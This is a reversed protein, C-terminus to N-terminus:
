HAAPRKAWASIAHGAEPFTLAFIFFTALAATICYICAVKQVTVMNWLYAGSFFADVATKATFVVPIWPQIEARNAGGFAALVITIALSAIVFTGDPVGFRYAQESSNVTDSDFLARNPLDPMHHILGTQFLSVITMAAIGVLSFVVILRRRTLDGTNGRQLDERIQQPTQDFLKEALTEKMSTEQQRSAIIDDARIPLVHLACSVIPIFLVAAWFATPRDRVM